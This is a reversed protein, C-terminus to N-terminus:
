KGGDICPDVVNRVNFGKFIADVFFIILVCLDVGAGEEFGWVLGSRVIGLCSLIFVMLPIDCSDRRFRYILYYSATTYEALSIKARKKINFQILTRLRSGAPNRANPLALSRMWLM